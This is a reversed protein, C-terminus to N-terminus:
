RRRSARYVELYEEVSFAAIAQVVAKERIEQPKRVRVCSKGRDLRNDDMLWQAEFAESLAPSSYVGMLYLSVHDKHSALAAYLLPQSNYTPGSVELPVQYAIMGWNMAEVYGEPLNDLIIRRLTEVMARREAPLSELYQDITAADSHVM